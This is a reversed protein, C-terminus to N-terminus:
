FKSAYKSVNDKIYEVPTKDLKRSILTESYTLPILICAGIFGWIVIGEINGQNSSSLKNLSGIVGIISGTGIKSGLSISAPGIMKKVSLKDSKHLTKTIKVITIISIFLSAVVLLPLFISWITNSISTTIDSIRDLMNM